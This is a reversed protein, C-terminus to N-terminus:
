VWSKYILSILTTNYKNKWYTLFCHTELPFILQSALFNAPDTVYLCSHGKLDSQKNLKNLWSFM